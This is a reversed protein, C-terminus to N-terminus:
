YSGVSNQGGDVAIIEGTIFAGARSAFFIAPGAADELTGWRGLATTALLEAEFKDGSIMKTPFPGPAICNVTFRPALERALHRTLMHVGAKSAGYAYTEYHGVKLGEVSGINIIRAPDELTAAKDMLPLLFRTLHFLGKLNLSLVKDWVADDHEPIPAFWNAGANNVLIHLGEEREAVEDAVRRCEAETSLNAPIAVCEGIASLTAETEACDREKRAVVYVKAGADVFGTAIMRGIGRTGGTVLATKGAISFMDSVM